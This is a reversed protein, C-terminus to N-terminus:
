QGAEWFSLLETPAAMHKGTTGFSYDGVADPPCSPMYYLTSASLSSPDLRDNFRIQAARFCRVHAPIRVPALWPLIVRFRPREPTHSYTTHWALCFNSPIADLVEAVTLVPKTPDANDIDLVLATLAMVNGAWRLHDKENAQNGFICPVWAEGDKLKRAEAREKPHESKAAKLYETRPKHGRVEPTSLLETFHIWSRDAVMFPNAVDTAGRVSSFLFAPLEHDPRYPVVMELRESSLFGQASIPRRGAKPQQAVTPTGAWAQVDGLRWRKRGATPLPQPFGPQTIVRHISRHSYGLLIAIECQNVIATPELKLLNNLRPYDRNPKADTM